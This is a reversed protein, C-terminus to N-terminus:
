TGVEGAKAAYKRALVAAERLSRAVLPVKELESAM